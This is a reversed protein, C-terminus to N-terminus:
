AAKVETLFRTVTGTLDEAQHTLQGAASLVQSSATGTAHAAQRVGVITGSVEQTGHAAQQVNRAIERTAAGQEEVAAAIAAAIDNIKVITDIIGHIATVTENSAGQISAIHDAIETTAQATQNALSKVESAVVAFGKGAEGARAAEITANLALLNTQAAINQILTVVDGIKQAGAALTQATADTRRADDVAQSAIRASQAVQRGIEEVSSTLEETASAVTQVNASTEGAATAVAGAQLSTQEATSAMSQATSQMQTAASAVGNVLQGVKAEFARTLQELAQARQVKVRNEADQAAALRDGEIMTDKFIQVAAAMEGIEDKRGVGPVAVGTDRAALAGMVQTMARIPRSISRAILFALAAGLLVSVIGAAIAFDTTGSAQGRADGSTQNAASEYSTELRAAAGEVRNGAALVVGIAAKYVPMHNDQGWFDKLKFAADHYASMASRMEQVIVVRDAEHTNAQLNDLGDMAKQFSDWAIQWHTLDGTSLSMTLQLRTRLLFKQIQEVDVENSKAQEVKEFYYRSMSASHISFVSLGALLCVLLGFGVLLRPLIRTNALM